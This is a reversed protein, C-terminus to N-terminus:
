QHPNLIVSAFCLKHLWIQEHRIPGVMYQMHLRFGIIINYISMCNCQSRIFRIEM